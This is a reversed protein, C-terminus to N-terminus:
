AFPLVSLIAGFISSFLNQFFRYIKTFINAERVEYSATVPVRSQLDSSVYGLSNAPMSLELSGIVQGSSFPAVLQGNENSVSKEPVFTMQVQSLVTGKPVVIPYDIAYNLSIYEEEGNEAKIPSIAQAPMDAKIANLTEYASFVYDLIENTEKFRQTSTPAGILVSIVSMGNETAIATLSAGSSDTTGTKIGRVGQRGYALGPLLLNYNKMPTADPTGPMFTKETISATDLIEPYDLAIRRALIAVSRASMSNEDDNPLNFKKNSLGYENPLGSSNILYADQIGFSRVLEYMKQVWADETGGLFEALAITAANASYISVAEYLDKVTYVGDVRLPVNSLEYNISTAAARESIPVVTSWTIDGNKIADHVLYQTIMKSMSAIKLVEDPNKEFLVRGTKEEIVMVGKADLDTASFAQVQQAFFCFVCTMCLSCVWLVYKKLKM